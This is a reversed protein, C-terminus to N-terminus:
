NAKVTWCNSKYEYGKDSTFTIVGENVTYDQTYAGNTKCMHVTYKYEKAKIYYANPFLYSCGSLSVLLASLLVALLKTKHKLM